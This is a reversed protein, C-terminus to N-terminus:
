QVKVVKEVVVVENGQMIRCYYIGQALGELNLTHSGLGSFQSQKVIRGTADHMLVRFGGTIKKNTINLLNSVPNPFLEVDLYNDIENLGVDGIEILSINDIFYYTTHSAVTVGFPPPDRFLVRDFTQQITKNSQFAGLTIYNSTTQPSFIVKVEQWADYPVSDLGNIEVLDAPNLSPFVSSLNEDAYNYHEGFLSDTTCAVFVRKLNFISRLDSLSLYFKLEYIKNPYISTTLKTEIYEGWHYTGETASAVATYAIIGAISSGEHPEQIGYIINSLPSAVESCTNLIDPSTLSTQDTFDNRSSNWWPEAIQINGIYPEPFITPCSTIEEFSGNPVLNIQAKLNLGIILSISLVIILRKM